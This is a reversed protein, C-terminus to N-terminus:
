QQKRVFPKAPYLVIWIWGTTLRGEGDRLFLVPADQTMPVGDKGISTKRQFLGDMLGNGLDVIAPNKAFLISINCTVGKLLRFSVSQLYVFLWM